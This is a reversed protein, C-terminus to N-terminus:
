KKMIVFDSPINYMKWIKKKHTLFHSIYKKFNLIGIYLYKGLKKKQYNITPTFLAKSKQSNDKYGATQGFESILNLLKKTSDIPNEM